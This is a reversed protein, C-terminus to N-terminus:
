LLLQIVQLFLDSVHTVVSSVDVVQRWVDLLLLLLNAFHNLLHFIRNLSASKLLQKKKVLFSLWSEIVGVALKFHCLFSLLSQMVHKVFSEVSECDEYM